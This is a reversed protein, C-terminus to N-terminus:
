SPPTIPPPTQGPFTIWPRPGQNEFRVNEMPSFTTGGWLLGVLRVQNPGIVQYYASGSDGGAIAPTQNTRDQCLMVQQPTTGAVGVNVCAAFTVGRTWGSTRGTKHVSDGVITRPREETITWRPMAPDIVLSGFGTTRYIQGFANEVGTAYRMGAADSWRCLNGVPCIPNDASTFFPIDWEETGIFNPDAPSPVSGTPQWYPTSTMSSRVSTCHSNTVFGHVADPFGAPRVNFGLTCLFGPFNIQLGGAVPRVRDRLGQMPYEPESLSIMVAESPLGAMALARAVAAAAAETEVGIHVRNAQEDADTFVVQGLSWVVQDAQARMAALTPFDYQGERVVLQQVAEGEIGLTPLWGHLSSAVEAESMTAPAMVVNLTQSEDYYLGAFGPIEQAMRVFIGDLGGAFQGPDRPTSRFLEAHLEGASAPDTITADSCASVVVLTTLSLGVVFRTRYSMVPEEQDRTLQTSVQGEQFRLQRAIV